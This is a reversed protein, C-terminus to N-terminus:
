KLPYEARHQNRYRQLVKHVQRQSIDGIATAITFHLGDKPPTPAAIYQRYMELIRQEVEPSVDPFRAFRSEDDHLTDIWRSVQYPTTYGLQEAMKVPIESLTYRKKNLEDWYLKEIEFRQERSLDATPSQAYQALSWEYVIDRVQRFPIGLAKAITSRRGGPPREGRAVYGRYTEIIHEKMEPTITVDPHIIKNIANTVAARTVWLKDSIRVVAEQLPIEGAAMEQEYARAIQERLEPTLEKIKPPRQQTVPKEIRPQPKPVVTSQRDFKPKEPRAIKKVEGGPKAGAPSPKRAGKTVCKPCYRAKRDTSFFTANCSSCQLRFKMGSM